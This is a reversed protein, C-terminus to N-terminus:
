TFKGDRTSARHGNTTTFGWHTLSELSGELTAEGCDTTTSKGGKRREARALVRMALGDKRRCPRASGALGAVWLDRGLPGAWSRLGNFGVLGVRTPWYHAAWAWGM